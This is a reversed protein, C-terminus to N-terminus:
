RKRLRPNVVEDLARGVMYFAGCFLMIALAPPIIAHWQDRFPSIRFTYQMFWVMTGWSMRMQTRGFFSLLAEILVSQTVIFMFNVLIFSIMNPLYHVRIIYWNSGGAIRAAEIYPKVKISQGYSKAIIAPSGLGAFIGFVLGMALWNMDVLLGIVLLVIPPPMLVFADSMGMLLTDIAGGYHASIMGILTALTTAITAAVLGLGFSTRTAFMLQSLVDRGLADTGLLHKWSPLNPHPIGEYDFGVLPHYTVRDWVTAMLIPHALAMLAFLVIISLGLVALSSHSLFFQFNQAARYGARPTKETSM